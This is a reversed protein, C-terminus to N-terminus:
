KQPFPLTNADFKQDKLAQEAAEKWRMLSANLHNLPHGYKEHLKQNTNIDSDIAAILVQLDFMPGDVTIPTESTSSM